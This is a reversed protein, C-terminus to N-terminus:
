DGILHVAVSRRHPRRRHEFLYVGQWTGLMLLGGILPISLHTQTLATRLHAPMDDPGEDDHEYGESEPALRAFYREVDRRAAPAANEQILLSASTHRCFLTLLGAEFRQASVWDVLRDTWEHLGPGPTDITFLTTAQRM